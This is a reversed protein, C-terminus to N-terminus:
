INMAVNAITGTATREIRMLNIITTAFVVTSRAYGRRKYQCTM